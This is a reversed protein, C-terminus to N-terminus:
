IDDQSKLPVPPSTRNRKDALAAAKAITGLANEAQHAAVAAAPWRRPNTHSPQPFENREMLRYLSSRSISLQILVEAEKYLKEALEGSPPLDAKAPAILAIRKETEAIWKAASTRDLKIFEPRLDCGREGDHFVGTILGARVANLLAEAREILEPVEPLEPLGDANLEVQRQQGLTLGQWDVATDALTARDDYKNGRKYTESV